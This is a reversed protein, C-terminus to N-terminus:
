GEPGLRGATPVRICCPKHPWKMALGFCCCNCRRHHCDTSHVPKVAVGSQNGREGQPGCYPMPSLPPTSHREVTLRKPGREWLGFTPMHIDSHSASSAGAHSPRWRAYAAGALLPVVAGSESIFFTKGWHSPAFLAAQLQPAIDHMCGRSSAGRNNRNEPGRGAERLCSRIQLPRFPANRQGFRPRARVRTAAGESPLKRRFPLGLTHECFKWSACSKHGGGGDGM